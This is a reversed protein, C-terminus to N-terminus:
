KLNLFSKLVNINNSARRGEGAPRAPSAPRTPRPAPRPEPELLGTNDYLIQFVPENNVRKTIYFLKKPWYSMTEHLSTDDGLALVNNRAYAFDSSGYYSLIEDRFKEMSIDRKIARIIRKRNYQANYNDMNALEFDLGYVENGQMHKITEQTFLEGLQPVVTTTHFDPAMTIFDLGMGMAIDLDNKYIEVDKENYHLLYCMLDCSQYIGKIRVYEVIRKFREPSVYAREHNSLSKKNFSQIGWCFLTFGYEAMVDIQEKTIYAPNLDIAKIPIERFGPIAEFINRMIEPTMLNPTGGGFYISNVKRSKIVDSFGEILNPLYHYYYDNYVKKSKKDGPKIVKGKYICYRCNSRCFPSSVYIHFDEDPEWPKNMWLHKIEELGVTKM